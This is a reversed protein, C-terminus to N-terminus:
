IACKQTWSQIQMFIITYPNVLAVIRSPYLNVAVMEPMEIASGRGM